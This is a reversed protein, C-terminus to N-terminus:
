AGEEKPFQVVVTETVEDVYQKLSQKLDAMDEESLGQAMEHLKKDISVSGVPVQRLAQFLVQLILASLAAENPTQTKETMRRGRV